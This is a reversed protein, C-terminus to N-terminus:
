AFVPKNNISNFSVLNPNGTKILSNFVPNRDKYNMTSNFEVDTNSKWGLATLEKELGDGYEEAMLCFAAVAEKLAENIDEETAAVTKLEGFLPINIEFTGNSLENVWTPMVVSVSSLEGDIRQISITIENSKM